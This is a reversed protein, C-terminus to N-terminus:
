YNIESLTNKQKLIRMQNKQISIYKLNERNINGIKKNM